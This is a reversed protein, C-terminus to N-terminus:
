AHGRRPRPPGGGRVARGRGRQRGGGPWLVDLLERRSVVRGPRRALYLLLEFPKADLPISRDGERLVGAGPDLEFPGFSLRLPPQGRLGNRSEPGPSTM